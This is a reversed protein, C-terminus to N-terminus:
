WGKIQKDIDEFSYGEIEPMKLITNLPLYVPKVYKEM